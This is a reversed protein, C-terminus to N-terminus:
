LRWIGQPMRSIVFKTRLASAQSTTAHKREQMEAATVTSSLTPKQRAFGYGSGVISRSVSRFNHIKVMLAHRIATSIWSCRPGFGTNASFRDAITAAGTHSWGIWCSFAICMATPVYHQCGHLENAVCCLTRSLASLSSLIADMENSAPSRSWQVLLVPWPTPTHYQLESTNSHSYTITHKTWRCRGSYGDREM